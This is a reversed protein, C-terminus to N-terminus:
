GVEGQDVTFCCHKQPLSFLHFTTSTCGVDDAHAPSALGLAAISLAFSLVM